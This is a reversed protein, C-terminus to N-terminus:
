RNTESVVGAYDDMLIEAYNLNLNLVKVNPYPSPDAYIGRKPREYNTESM